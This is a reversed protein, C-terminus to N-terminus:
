KTLKRKKKKERLYSCISGKNDLGMKWLDLPLSSAPSTLNSQANLFLEM